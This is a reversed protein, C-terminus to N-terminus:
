KVPATYKNPTHKLSARQSSRRCSGSGSPTILTWPAYPAYFGFPVEGEGTWPEAIACNDLYKGGVGELEPAVAAWVTTAAGQEVTRWEPGPGDVRNGASDLWGREALEQHPTHRMLSTQIAGPAAANAPM